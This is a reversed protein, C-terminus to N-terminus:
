NSAELAKLLISCERVESASFFMSFASSAPSNSVCAAQYSQQHNRVRHMAAKFYIFRSLGGVMYYTSVQMSYTKEAILALVVYHWGGQSDSSKPVAKESDTRQSVYHVAPQITPWSSRRGCGVCTDDEEAARRGM